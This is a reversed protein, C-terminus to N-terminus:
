FWLKRTVPSAVTMVTAVRREDTITAPNGYANKARLAMAKINALDPDTLKALEAYFAPTFDPYNAISLVMAQRAKEQQQDLSYLIALKFLLQSYPMSYAMKEFLQIKYHLQSRTPLLYNSLVLEAEPTWLPNRAIEQLRVVRRMDEKIDPVPMNFRVLDWFINYGFVFNAVCCAAVGLSVAAAFSPRIELMRYPQPSLACVLLLMSLFPWYWLPYELMSHSLIITAIGLLLLNDSSQKGKALYPLLCASLGIVVIATGILGTEALLQFFLNHCHTFLWSEPFKPLGDYAEMSVTYHAFNGLGVGLLPHALFIDWAKIWEVRRRVGMGAVLIREAGSQADISWGLTNLALELPHSFIQVLALLLVVTALAGVMRRVESDHAARRIWFWALGCLALAYGFPMRSGSWVLLLVLLSVSVFFVAFRMKRTAYLYSAAVVGWALFDAFQNRQGVNGFINGTRNNVDYGVWGNSEKAVDIVQAFGMVSQLLAAVFFMSALLQILERRKVGVSNSHLASFLFFLLLLLLVPILAAAHTTVLLVIIFLLIFINILPLSFGSQQYANVVLCAGVALLALGTFYWDGLPAYRMFNFLPLLIVLGLSGSYASGLSIRM